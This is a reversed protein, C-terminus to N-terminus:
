KLFDNIEDRTPISPQAGLKTVSLASAASAFQVAEHLSKGEGLAVALVGNFVDGAATTDVAEVKFAPVHKMSEKMAVLVGNAGLTILVTQIGRDLLLRGAKAASDIDGVPMGTLATTESENPTLISVRSLIHADVRRAPAPNLITPIGLERGLTLTQEVTEMPMELQLLLIDAREIADRAALVDQPSLNENAGLAVAISNEGDRAVFIQAIGSPAEEDRMIYSVDIGDREYGKIAEDGFHDTGVRAVFTVRAGARAAAVAQNAGKGGPATSFREGIVTEGPRPIRPVQIIMDTNSSGIVVVRCSM